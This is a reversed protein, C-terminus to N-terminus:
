NAKKRIEERARAMVSALTVPAGGKQKSEDAATMFAVIELTEEPSVPAVGTKFFKCIEV